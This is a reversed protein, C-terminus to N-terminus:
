RKATTAAFAIPFESVEVTVAATVGIPTLEAGCLTRATAPLSDAVTVHDAGAVVLPDVIM